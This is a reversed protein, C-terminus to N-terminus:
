HTRETDYVDNEQYSGLATQVESDPVEPFYTYYAGVSGLFQEEDLLVVVEDVLEGLTCVADHPAMLAAVIIKLPKQKHIAKVAAQMTLSTAIGDDVVIAIKKEASHSPVGGAYVRRRRRADKQQVQMATDIWGADIASIGIENCVFEGNEAIACVAYEENLPHGIKRVIVIDLPVGLAKSVELGVLVGGRPIAYVVADTQKYHQLKAALQTGAEHRDFFLKM